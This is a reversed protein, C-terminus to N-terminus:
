AAEQFRGVAQSEADFYEFLSKVGSMRFLRQAALNMGVLKIDGNFARVKRLREVFVGVGMYSVFGVESLNVVLQFRGESLCEYMATRLVDVGGEDVDGALRLVTVAGTDSREVKM